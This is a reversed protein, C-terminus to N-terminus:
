LNIIKANKNIEFNISLNNDLTTKKTKFKVFTSDKDIMIIDISLPLYASDTFKKYNKYTVKLHKDALNDNVVSTKILKSNSIIFHHNIEVSKGKKKKYIKNFVKIGSSDAVVEYESMKVFYPYSFLQATLIAQLANFGIPINFKKMLLKQNGVYATEQLPMYFIATDPTIFLQAAIIGLGPSFSLYLSSDKINELKGFLTVNKETSKLQLAFRCELTKYKLEKCKYVEIKKHETKNKQVKLTGCSAVLLIILVLIKEYKKM